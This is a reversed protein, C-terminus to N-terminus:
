RCSVDFNLIFMFGHFNLKSSVLQHLPVLNVDCLTFYLGIKGNKPETMLIRISVAM